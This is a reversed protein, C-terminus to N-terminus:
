ECSRLLKGLDGPEWLVPGIYSHCKRCYDVEWRVGCRSCRFSAMLEPRAPILDRAKEEPYYEADDYDFGCYEDDYECDDKNDDEDDDEYEENPEYRYGYEARFEKREQLAQRLELGDYCCRLPRKGAILRGGWSNKDKKAQDTIVTLFSILILPIVVFLLLALDPPIEVFVEEEQVKVDRVVSSEKSWIGAEDQVKLTLVHRGNSLNSAVFWTSSGNYLEGDRDSHWVYRSIRSRDQWGAQFHITTSEERLDLTVSQITARPLALVKFNMSDEPSWVGNQDQVWLVINYDGAGLGPACFGPNPGDYLVDDTAKWVYRIIPSPGSGRGSLTVNQGEVPTKPTLSHIEAEPGALELTMSAKASWAGYEDKVQLTIEHTGPLFGTYQFQPSAGQYLLESNDKWRYLLLERDPLETARFRFSDIYSAGTSPSIDQIHALPPELVSINVVAYVSQHGFEDWVRLSIRHLGSRHLGQQLELVKESGLSGSLSSHWQYSTINGEGWSEGELRLPAGASLTFDSVSEIFAEPPLTVNFSSNGLEVLSGNDLMVFLRLEHEGPELGEFSFETTIGTSYEKGWPDSSHVWNVDGEQSSPDGRTLLSPAAGDLPTRLPPAMMNADPEETNTQQAELAM